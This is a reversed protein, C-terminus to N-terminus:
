QDIHDRMLTSSVHEQPADAEVSREVNKSESMTQYSQLQVKCLAIWIVEVMVHLNGCVDFPVRQCPWFLSLSAPYTTPRKRGFVDIRGGFDVKIVQHGWSTYPLVAYREHGERCLRGREYGCCGM